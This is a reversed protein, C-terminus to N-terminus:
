DSSGSSPLVVPQVDASTAITLTGTIQTEPEFGGLWVIYRGELPTLELYPNLNAAGDRDDNCQFAGDPDRVVLTTDAAAEFFLVFDDAEGSWDFAFTPTADIFGTCQDNGLEINYAGLEGGAVLTRTYPASEATIPADPAAVMPEGDLELVDLPLVEGVAGPNITRPFMQAIDLTAPNFEQSTVVLFGPTTVDGEFSGLYIAYRGPAPNAIEVYPDLMLPNLDDNCLVEGDPTAVVLIPDGMSLFFIRLMEVSDDETWNLVVDPREDIAGTCTPGLTSAKVAPGTASGSHVSVLMPDLWVADAGGMYLIATTPDAEPSFVGATAAMDTMKEEEILTLAGDQLAYFDQVALTPCCQADGSGQTVMDVVIQGDVIDLNHLDVRDGLLITAVNTLTGAAAIVVALNYFVGTGATNTELVVAADEVEDGNLDGYAVYGTLTVLLGDGVTAPDDEEYQGNVLTVQGAASYENHYTLNGLTELAIPPEDKDSQAQTVAPVFSLAAILLVAFLMQCFQKERQM